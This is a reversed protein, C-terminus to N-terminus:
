TNKINSWKTEFYKDYYVQKSRKMVTSLLHRYKKYHSM